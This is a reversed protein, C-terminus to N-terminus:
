IFKLLESMTYQNLTDDDTIDEFFKGKYKCHEANILGNIIIKTSLYKDYLKKMVDKRESLNTILDAKEMSKKHCGYLNILTDAELMNLHSQLTNYRVDVNRNCKDGLDEIGYNLNSLTNQIKKSYEQIVEQNDAM